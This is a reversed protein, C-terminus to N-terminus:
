QDSVGSSSDPARLWKAVVSRSVVRNIDGICIWKSGNPASVALKSHDKSASFTESGLDMKVIKEVKYAGFCYSGLKQVNGRQWPETLLNSKLTPAVWTSYIDQGYESSKAFSTFSQGHTSTLSVARNWPAKTVHDEKAVKVISPVKKALRPPVNSSYVWPYNYMLQQGINEFQDYDFTVCLFSQGNKRASEPWNYGLASNKPFKPTSHVLWFGSSADFALDGKLHGYKSNTRNKDPLQDNYMLYGVNSSHPNSYIQQLTYAIAHNATNLWNKSLKLTTQHVDMYMYGYGEQVQRSSSSSIKPLKYVIFWDVPNGGEDCCTIAADCQMVVAAALVCLVAGHLSHM